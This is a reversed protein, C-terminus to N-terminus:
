TYFYIEWSPIFVNQPKPCPILKHLENKLEKMKLIAVQIDEYSELLTKFAKVTIELQTDLTQLKSAVSYKRMKEEINKLLTAEEQLFCELYCRPKQKELCMEYRIKKRKYHLQAISKYDPDSRGIHDELDHIKSQLKEIHDIYEQSDPVSLVLSRIEKHQDAIERYLQNLRTQTGPISVACLLFNILFISFSYVGYIKKM